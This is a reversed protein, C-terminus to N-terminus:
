SSRTGEASLPELHAAREPLYANPNDVVPQFIRNPFRQLVSQLVKRVSGREAFLRGQTRSAPHLGGLEIEIRRVSRRTRLLSKLQLKAGNWIAEQRATPEKLLRTMGIPSSADPPYLRVSVRRCTRRELRGVAEETLHELVPLLEGPEEASRDFDFQESVSAPPQYHPIREEAQEPHFFRYLQRGQNGFQAELHRESLTRVQDATELGFLTLRNVCEAEFGLAELRDVDVRRLFRQVEDPEIAMVRGPTAELAALRAVPREPAAGVQAGFQDALTQLTEGSPPEFLMWGPRLPLVRPTTRYVQTRVDEWFIQELQPDRERFCVEEEDGYLEEARDLPVGVELGERALARSRAVVHDHDHVIMRRRDEVQEHVWAPFDPLHLAGIMASSSATTSDTSDTNPRVAQLLTQIM